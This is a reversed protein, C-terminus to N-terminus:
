PGGDGPVDIGAAPDRGRVDFGGTPDRGGPFFQRVRALDALVPFALDDITFGAPVRPVPFALDDITFGAVDVAV